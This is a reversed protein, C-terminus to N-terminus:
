TFPGLCLLTKRYKRSKKTARTKHASSPSPAESGGWGVICPRGTSRASPPPHIPLPKGGNGQEFEGPPFFFFNPVHGGTHGVAKEAPFFTGRRCSLRRWGSRFLFTQLLSLPTEGFISNEDDYQGRECLGSGVFFLHSNFNLRTKLKSMTPFLLRIILYNELSFFFRSSYRRHFKKKQKSSVARPRKKRLSASSSPPATADVNFTISYKGKERISYPTAYPVVAQLFDALKYLCLFPSVRAMGDRRAEMHATTGGEERPRLCCFLLIFILKRKGRSSSKRRGRRSKGEDDPPPLISPLARWVYILKERM